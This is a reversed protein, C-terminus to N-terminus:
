ASQKALWVNTYAASRRYSEQTSDAVFKEVLGGVGFIKVDVDMTVKRRLKDPGASETWMEGAIKVKDALAGTTIRFRYRKSTRDFTGDETYSFRDGVLKKVVAPADQKPTVRIKRTHTSGSDNEEIIKYEPFQLEKLFLDDNFGKNFFIKDWFADADCAIDHQFQVHM